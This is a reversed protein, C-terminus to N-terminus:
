QHKWEPQLSHHLGIEQKQRKTVFLLNVVIAHFIAAMTKTLAKVEETECMKIPNDTHTMVDKLLSVREFGDICGQIYWKMNIMISQNQKYYM